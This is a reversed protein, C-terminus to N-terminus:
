KPLMDKISDAFPFGLDRDGNWLIRGARGEDSTYLDAGIKMLALYFAQVGVSGPAYRIKESGLGVIQYPCCYNGDFDPPAVPCGIRVAIEGKGELLLTRSAIIQGLDSIKM